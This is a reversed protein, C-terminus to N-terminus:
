AYCSYDIILGTEQVFLCTAIGILLPNWGILLNTRGQRRTQHDQRTMVCVLLLLIIIITKVLNINLFLHHYPTIVVLIISYHAWCVMWYYNIIYTDYWYNLWLLQKKCYIICSHFKPWWQTWGNCHIGSIICLLFSSPFQWDCYWVRRAVCFVCDDIDISAEPQPKATLPWSPFPTWYTELLATLKLAWLGM